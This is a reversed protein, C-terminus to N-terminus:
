RRREKRLQNRSKLAIIRRRQEACDSKRNGHFGATVFSRIAMTERGPKRTVAGLPITNSKMPPELVNVSNLHKGAETEM